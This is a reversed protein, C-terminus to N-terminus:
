RTKAQSNLSWDYKLYRVRVRNKELFARDDDTAFRRVFALVGADSDGFDEEFWDFIKSVYMTKRERDLHNKRQRSKTLGARIWRRCEEDLQADLQAGTYAEPRLRPCSSAGCVLAAHIRNDDFKKRLIEHEIENLTRIKGAIKYNKEKFINKGFLAANPVVKPLDADVLTQACVANYANIWFAKEEAASGLSRVDVAALAALYTKLERSWQGSLAKYDVWGDDTVTEKLIKDWRSHDFEEGQVSSILTAGVLVVCLSQTLWNLRRRDLSRNQM